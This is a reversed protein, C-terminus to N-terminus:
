NAGDSGCESRCAARSVANSEACMSQCYGVRDPFCKRGTSAGNQSHEYCHEQTATAHSSNSSQM